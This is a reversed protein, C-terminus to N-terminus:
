KITEYKAAYNLHWVLRYQSDTGWLCVQFASAQQEALAPHIATHSWGKGIVETNSWIDRQMYKYGTPCTDSILEKEM